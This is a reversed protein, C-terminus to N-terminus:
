VSNHNQLLTTAILFIGFGIIITSCIILLLKYLKENIRKKGISILSSVTLYWALDGIEHGFYFSTLGQWNSLSINYQLMFGFGITAWWIWWYPNSMSILAGGLIPNSIKVLSKPESNYRNSNTENADFPTKFNGKKIKFVIDIGMYILFGGGFTGILKVVLGNKLVFSFGKLIGVVIFGEICAHGLIVLAGILYSRRKTELTKIVTYTLLPGPVLAGTLAVIMSFGFIYFLNGM